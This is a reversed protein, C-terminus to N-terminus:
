VKPNNSVAPCTLLKLKLKLRAINQCLLGTDPLKIQSVRFTNKKMMMTFKGVPFQPFNLTLFIFWADDTRGTKLLVM